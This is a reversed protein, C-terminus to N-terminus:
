AFGYDILTVQLTKMGKVGRKVAVNGPHVDGHAIGLEHLKELNTLLRLAIQIAEPM